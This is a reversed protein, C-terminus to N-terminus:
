RAQTEARNLCLNPQCQWPLLVHRGYGIHRVHGRPDSLIAGPLKFEAYYNNAAEESLYYKDGMRIKDALRYPHERWLKTSRLGPNFTFGNWVTTHGDPMTYTFNPIMVSHTDDIRPGLPHGNTDNHARLWVTFYENEHSNMIVLSKEIFGPQTFEWDDECHFIWKTKVYSYAKDISEVQGMNQSNYIIHVNNGSIHNICGTQGSDDIIIIEEIPYTNFRIFSQLTKTLLDPRNCSTIVLTVKDEELKDIDWDWSRNSQDALRSDEIQNHDCSKFYDLDRKLGKQDFFNDADGRTAKVQMFFNLSQISYHNIILTPYSVEAKLLLPYGGTLKCEHIGLEQIFATRTISKYNSGPLLPGQPARHRFSQVVSRPQLIHESSGFNLWQCSLQAVHPLVAKLFAPISDHRNPYWLFEDLDVIALWESEHKAQQGYKEYIRIQRDPLKDVIDNDYLVIDHNHEMNSIHIIEKYNDTSHDNILYFQQVGVSRYHNLWEYLIHGENKFVALVTFFYKHSTSQRLSMSILHITNRSLFRALTITRHMHM